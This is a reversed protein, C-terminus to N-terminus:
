VLHEDIKKLIKSLQRFDNFKFNIFNKVEIAQKRKRGIKDTYVKPYSVRHVDGHILNIVLINTNNRLVELANTIHDEDEFYRIILVYKTQDTRGYVRSQYAEPTVVSLFDPLSSFIGNINHNQSNINENIFFEPRDQFLKNLINILIDFYKESVNSIQEDIIKTAEKIKEATVSIRQSDKQLKNYIDHYNSFFSYLNVGSLNEGNRGETVSDYEDFKETKYSEPLDDLDNALKILKSFSNIFEKDEELLPVQVDRNYKGTWQYTISKINPDTESEVEESKIIGIDMLFSVLKKINETVISESFNKNYNPNLFQFVSKQLLSNEKWHKKLEKVNKQLFWQDVYNFLESVGSFNSDGDKIKDTDIIPQGKDDFSIFDSINRKLDFFDNGSRFLLYNILEEKENGDIKNSSNFIQYLYNKLEVSKPLSLYIIHTFLTPFVGGDKADKERDSIVLDFAKESSLFLFHAFSLNFLNKYEKIAKLSKEEEIKDLEDIVFVIKKDEKNRLWSEFEIELYETSDDIVLSKKDVRNQFWNKEWNFSLFLIGIGIFGTLLRWATDNLSFGFFIMLISILEIIIKGNVKLEAKIGLSKQSNIEKLESSEEKYRGFCRMYIEELKKDSKFEKNFHIARILSVLVLRKNDDKPGKTNALAHGINVFVPHINEIESLTKHVFSTKGIGRISAILVASSANGLIINKLSNIEQERGVFFGPSKDGYIFQESWNRKLYIKM